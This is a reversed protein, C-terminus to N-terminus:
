RKNYPQLPFIPKATAYDFPWIIEQKGDQIQFIINRSSINDHTHGPPPTVPTFRIFDWPMITQDGPINTAELAKRIEEKDLSKARNIADALVFPGNFTLASEMNIETKYRQTYLANVKKVVDKQLRPNFFGRLGAGNAAKGVSPVFTPNDYGTLGFWVKPLFNQNQMAKTLLISDSVYGSHVFIEPNSAKLKMVESVLSTTEKPFPVQAVIKYGRETGVKNFEEFTVAGFESNEYAIGVTKLNVKYMRNLDGIYDFFSLATSGLHPCLRFFYRLGRTTLDTSSGAGSVYPTKLREAAQSGTKIEASTWGGLVAVVGVNEILREVESRAINPDGQSDGWVIEIKANNLNPIGETKALPLNLDPYKNNIIDVAFEIGARNYRGTQALSGTLPLVAGVKINEAAIAFSAPLGEMLFIIGMALILMKWKKMTM